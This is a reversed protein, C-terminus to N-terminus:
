SVNYYPKIWKYSEKSHNVSMKVGRNTDKTSVTCTLIERISKTLYKRLLPSKGMKM